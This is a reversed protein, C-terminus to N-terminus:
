RIRGLDPRVDTTDLFLARAPHDRDLGRLWSAFLVIAGLVYGFDMPAWMVLAGLHQDLMPDLGVARAAAAQAPYIPHQPFTLVAGLAAGPPVAVVLYLVAQLGTLRRPSDGLLHWWFWWATLLFTAHESLHVLENRVALDYAAPLHWAWMSGIHLLWALPAALLLGSPLHHAVKVVPRRVGAPLGALLVRGPSSWALLPGCVMILVVHQLMHTWLREELLEGLPSGAVLVLVAVATALAWPRGRQARRGQAHRRFRVLGRLYCVWLVLSGALLVVEVIRM